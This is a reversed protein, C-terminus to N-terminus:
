NTIIAVVQGQYNQYEVNMLHCTSKGTFDLQFQQTILEVLEKGYIKREKCIVFGRSSSDKMIIIENPKVAINVSDGEQLQLRNAIDKSFTIRKGNTHNVVQLVSHKVQNRPIPVTPLTAGEFLDAAAEELKQIAPVPSAAANNAAVGDQTQETQAKQHEKPANSEIAEVLTVATESDSKMVETSAQAQEQVDIDTQVGKTPVEIKSKKNQVHNEKLTKM